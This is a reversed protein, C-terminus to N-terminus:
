KLNNLKSCIDNFKKLSFNENLFFSYLNRKIKNTVKMKTKKYKRFMKLEHMSKTSWLIFIKINFKSLCEEIKSKKITLYFM